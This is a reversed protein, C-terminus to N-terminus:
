RQSGRCNQRVVGRTGGLPVPCYRASPRPWRWRQMSDPRFGLLPRSRLRSRGVQTCPAAAVLRSPPANTGLSAGAGLKIADLRDKRQMEHASADPKEADKKKLARCTKRLIVAGVVVLLVFAVAGGIGGAIAKANSSSTVTTVNETASPKTPSATSPPATPEVVAIIPAPSTPAGIVLIGGTPSLTPATPSATTPSRTSPVPIKTPCVAMQCQVSGLVCPQGAQLCFAADVSSEVGHVVRTCTATSTTTGLGCTATCSSQLQQM